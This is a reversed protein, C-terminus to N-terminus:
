LRRGNRRPVLRKRSHHRPCLRWSDFSFESISTAYHHNLPRIFSAGVLVFLETACAPKASLRSDVPLHHRQWLHLQELSRDHHPILPCGDYKFFQNSALNSFRSRYKDTSLPFHHHPSPLSPLFFPPSTLDDHHGMKQPVVAYYVRVLFDSIAAQLSLAPGHM